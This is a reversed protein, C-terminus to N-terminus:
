TSRWRRRLTRLIVEQFGWNVLLSPNSPDTRVHEKLNAQMYEDLQTMWIMDWLSTGIYGVCTRMTAVGNMGGWGEM